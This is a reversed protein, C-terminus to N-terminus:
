HLLDNVRREGIENNEEDEEEEEAENWDKQLVLNM